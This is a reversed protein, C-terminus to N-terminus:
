EEGSTADSGIVLGLEPHLELRVGAVTAVRETFVVARRYRLLAQEQWTKPMYSNDRLLTPVVKRHSLAITRRAIRVATARDPVVGVDLSVSDSESVYVRGERGVLCALQVTPDSDRTIARLQEHVIPDEDDSFPLRLDGFIDDEMEPSPILRGEANQRSAITGGFYDIYAGFLKDDAVPLGERYVAQVLTEIDDPLTMETRGELARLTERVIVEAYVRAVEQLPVRDFAGDPHAIWLRPRLHATSRNDRSRHRHLRGTRQLLLDVPALDSVLLDFDIDLSQELVQTGVVVCRDPRRAGRYEPGLLAELRQEREVRDDPLMRAHLLLRPIDRGIRTVATYAAQARAVTNCIWGLCGGGQLADVVARALRDIDTDVREIAITVSETRPSVAISSCDDRTVTSIRPYRAEQRRTRITGGLGKGYAALLGARRTRPLTASLLVVTTGLAALWEVLRDLITSTFTDYAHVEDLVVTKGALGYLRVFGHRTRLVGLLAQDVTGVGHEALLTRKKSLFWAEAAVAGARAGEEDYVATLPRFGDVLPADGHALVLTSHADPRSQELFTRVRGLMQNATAKTPLGIYFGQHGLRSAAAHALLLAAETKGEGMPAEILILSPGDLTSALAETAQHVPWPTFTPFLEHFSRVPTTEYPRMGARALADEARQLALPWYAELSVQPVVYQFVDEMSGIWDAVATVGALRVVDAHGLRISPVQGVQFFTRLSEIAQRRADQWRPQRGCERTGMLDFNLSANTPFEGHHATVARALSLAQATPVAADCLADRVFGLGAAGHHRAREPANLDFGRTPLLRQAWDLKAQFAPTYKGLDHLAITYLLLALSAGEDDPVAALLHRRLALPAYSTLLHQAVAAVDLLHCLLPHAPCNCRPRGKGWCEWAPRDGARAIWEDPTVTQL